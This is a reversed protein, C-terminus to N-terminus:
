YNQTKKSYNASLRDIIERTEENNLPMNAKVDQALGNKVRYRSLLISEFKTSSTPGDFLEEHLKEGQKLGIIEM